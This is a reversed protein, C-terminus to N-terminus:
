HQKHPKRICSNEETSRGTKCHIPCCKRQPRVILQTFCGYSLRVPVALMTPWIKSQKQNWQVRPNSPICAMSFHLKNRFNWRNGAKSVTQLGGLLPESSLRKRAVYNFIKVSRHLELHLRTHFNVSTANCELLSPSCSVLYVSSERFQASLFGTDGAYYRPPSNHSTYIRIM